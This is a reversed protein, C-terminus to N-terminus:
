AVVPDVAPRHSAGAGLDVFPGGAFAIRGNLGAVGCADDFVARIDSRHAAALADRSRVILEFRRDVVLGDFQLPGLRSTQLTVLFRRAARSRDDATKRRQFALRIGHVREGDHFPVMVSRWDTGAEFGSRVNEAFEATLRGVLEGRGAATVAALASGGVWGGIDRARLSRLYGIVAAAVNRDVRPLVDYALERAIAPEADALHRLVDEITSWAGAPRGATGQGGAPPARLDLIEFTVPTGPLPGNAARVVATGFPMRVVLRDPPTWGAVVAQVISRRPPERFGAASAPAGARPAAAPPTGGTASALDDSAGVSHPSPAPAAADPTTGATARPAGPAGSEGIALTRLTLRTATALLTAQAATGPPEGPAASPPGASGPGAPATGSAPGPVVRAVVVAGPRLVSAVPEGPAHRAAVGPPPLNAGTPPALPAEAAPRRVGLVVVSLQNGVNHVELTVTSDKPPSLNTRISLGGHATALHLRGAADRGIVRAEVITGTALRGIAEAAEAVIAATAAGAAAPLPPPAAGITTM